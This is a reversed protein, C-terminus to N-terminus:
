VHARGIERYEALTRFAGPGDPREPSRGPSGVGFAMDADKADALIFEPCNAPDAHIAALKWELSKAITAVRLEEWPQFREGWM